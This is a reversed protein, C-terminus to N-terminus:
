YAHRRAARSGLYRIGEKPRCSHVPTVKSEPQEISGKTMLKRVWSTNKARRTATLEAPSLLVDAPLDRNDRTDNRPRIFFQM